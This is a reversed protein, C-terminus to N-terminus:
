SGFKAIMHANFAGYLRVFKRMADQALASSYMEAPVLERLVYQFVQEMRRSNREGMDVYHVAEDYLRVIDHTHCCCHYKNLSYVVATWFAGYNGYPMDEQIYCGVQYQKFGYELTHGCKPGYKEQVERRVRAVEERSFERM